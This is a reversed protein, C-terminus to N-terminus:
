GDHDPQMAARVHRATTFRLLVVGVLERSCAADDDDPDAVPEAYEAVEAGAAHVIETKAVLDQCQLPHVVVDACETAIGVPHGDESLGGARIRHERQHQAPLRGPQELARDHLACREPDRSPRSAIVAAIRAAALVAVVPCSSSAWVAAAAAAARNPSIPRRGNPGIM